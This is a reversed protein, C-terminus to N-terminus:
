QRPRRLAKGLNRAHIRGGSSQLGFLGSALRTEETVMGAFGIMTFYCAFRANQLVVRTAAGSGNADLGLTFALSLRTNDAPTLTILCNRIIYRNAAITTTPASASSATFRRAPSLAGATPVSAGSKVSFECSPLGTLRCQRRLILIDPKHLTSIDAKM